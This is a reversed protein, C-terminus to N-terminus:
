QKDNTEAGKKLGCLPCFLFINRNKNFCQKCQWSIQTKNGSWAIPADGDGVNTNIPSTENAFMLANAVVEIDNKEQVNRMVNLIANRDGLGIDMLQKIVNEDFVDKSNEMNDKSETVQENGEDFLAFAANIKANNDAFFNDNDNLLDDIDDWLRCSNPPLFHKKWNKPDIQKGCSDCFECGCHMCKMHKCGYIREIYIGCDVNPCKKYGQEKCYDNMKKDSDNVKAVIVPIVAPKTKVKIEDIFYNNCQGDDLKITWQDKKMRIIQGHHNHMESDSDEPDSNFDIYSGVGIVDSKLESEEDDSENNGEDSEQNDSIIDDKKEVNIEKEYNNNMGKTDDADVMEKKEDDNKESVSIENKKDNCKKKNEVLSEEITKQLLIDYDDCVDQQKERESKQKPKSKKREAEKKEKLKKQLYRIQEDGSTVYDHDGESVNSGIVNRVNQNNNDDEMPKSYVAVKFSFRVYYKSKSDVCLKCNLVGLLLWYQMGDESNKRLTIQESTYQVDPYSLQDLASSIQSMLYDVYHDHIFDPMSVNSAIDRNRRANETKALISNQVFNDYKVLVRDKVGTYIVSRQIYIYNCHDGWSFRSNHQNFFNSFSQLQQPKWEELVNAHHSSWYVGM